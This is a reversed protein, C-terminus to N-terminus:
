PLVLLANSVIVALTLLILGLGLISVSYHRNSNYMRASLIINVALVIVLFGIFALIDASHGAKFRSVNLLNSCDRCQVIYGENRGPDFKLLILVSGLITLFVSITLLLLVMRDHIYTKPSAM